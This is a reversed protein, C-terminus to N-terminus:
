ETSKPNALITRAKATLADRGSPDGAALAQMAEVAIRALRDAAEDTLEQGM